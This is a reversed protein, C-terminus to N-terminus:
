ILTELSFANIDQASLGFDAGDFVFSDDFSGETEQGLSSPNFTLVSVNNGIVNGDASNKVEVEGITSLHIDGQPSLSVANVDETDFTYLGVDGGDFYVSWTGLPSNKDTKPQVRLIDEDSTAVGDVIISTGITSILLSDDDLLQVADIDQMDETLGFKSGDFFMEFSGETTEGMETGMFKVIDSDDVKTEVGDITITTPTSFSLLIQKDGIVDFADVDIDGVGVDSGDFYTRLGGGDFVVIDEDRYEVGNIETKIDLSFFSYEKGKPIMSDTAASPKLGLLLEVQANLARDLTALDVSNELSFANINQDALGSGAGNFVPEEFSGETNRGLSSAIFEFVSVNNGVINNGDSDLVIFQGLTSLNLNGQTNLSIGDIDETNTNLGVDGGDFYVSWPEDSDTNGDLDLKLIDEDRNRSSVGEIISTTGITSILLSGDELLHIADIDQLDETLGYESGDVFMEFYGGTVKGLRSSTFKIIDSDDVITVVGNLILKTPRSFSLLIEKDSIIDLADVNTGAIGVDSGDFYQKFNNGDFAIIDENKYTTGNILMKNDLSFFLSEESNSEIATPSTTNDKM